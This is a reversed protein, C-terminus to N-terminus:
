PEAILGPSLQSLEETPTEEIYKLLMEEVTEYQGLPQKKLLDFGDGGENLFDNVAVVYEARNSLPRGGISISRIKYTNSVSGDRGRNM